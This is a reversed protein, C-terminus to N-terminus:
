IPHSLYSVIQLKSVFLIIELDSLLMTSIQYVQWSFERSSHLTLRAGLTSLLCVHTKLAFQIFVFMGDLNNVSQVSYLLHELFDILYFSHDLLHVDNYKCLRYRLLSKIRLFSQKYFHYILKIVTFKAIILQKIIIM